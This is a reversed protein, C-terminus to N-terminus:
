KWVNPLLSSVRRLTRDSVFMCSYEITHQLLGRLEETPIRAGRRLVGQIAHVRYGLPGSGTWTVVM